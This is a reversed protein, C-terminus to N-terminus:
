ALTIPMEPQFALETASLRAGVAQVVNGTSNPATATAAGATTSLYMRPGGALGSLVNNIGTAYVTANSPATVSSLVFGHAEKGQSTADAKRVSLTGGDDWINVLDGAALNESAPLLKTEAGIGSPMMSNDIKGGADLAVIKGADGAGASSQLATEETTRGNVNKLYKDGPM